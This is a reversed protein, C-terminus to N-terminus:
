PNAYWGIAAKYIWSVPELAHKRGYLDVIVVGVKAELQKEKLQKEDPGTFHGDFGMGPNLRWPKKGAYHGLITKWKGEGIRLKITVLAQIPPTGGPHHIKFRVEPPPKLSYVEFYVAPVLHRTYKEYVQDRRQRLEKYNFKNGKPEEINYHGIKAHCDFCLPIANDIENKGIKKNRDIHAVEIDVGCLKDCLCCHRQCWLLCQIKIDLPFKVKQNM